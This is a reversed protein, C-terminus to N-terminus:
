SDGSRGAQTSILRQFTALRKNLGPWSTDGCRTGKYGNLTAQLWPVGSRSCTHFARVLAEHTLKTQVLVNGHAVDWDAGNLSNRHVQGFGRAKGADCEKPKCNGAIIRSSLHTENEAVTLILTAWERPPRPASKSVVAISDAIEQLQAPKTEDNKDEDSVVVKSIAARVWLAHKSPGENAASLSPAVLVLLLIVATVSQRIRSVAVMCVVVNALAALGAFFDLNQWLCFATVFVLMASAFGYRNETNM